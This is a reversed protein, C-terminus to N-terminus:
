CIWVDIKQLGNKSHFVPKGYGTQTFNPNSHEYRSKFGPRLSSLGEHHAVVSYSRCATWNDGTNIRFPNYLSEIECFIFTFIMACYATENTKSEVVLGSRKKMYYGQNRLNMCGVSFNESKSGLLLSSFAVLLYRVCMTQSSTSQSQFGRVISTELM